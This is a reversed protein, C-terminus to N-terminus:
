KNVRRVYEGKETNIEILDDQEVFLPVLIEAGTELVVTKNGSQSRDGKVGPPAQDVKLIVKIPLSINIIKNEFLLAELELGEKLYGAIDGIQEESLEFRQSSNNAECFVYKGKNSYIFKAKLKSIEAEKFSDTGRFTEPIIAGTILNKLKVQLVSSGRGKFMSSAEILEHPQNKYVIRVGRRLESYNLM